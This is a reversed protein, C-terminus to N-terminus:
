RGRRLSGIALGFLGIGGLVLIPVIPPTSTTAPQNGEPTDTGSAQVGGVAQTPALAILGPPYTFTPLIPLSAGGSAGTGDTGPVDPSQVTATLVSGPTQVLLALTAEGGTPASQGTSASSFPDNVEPVSQLDGTVTVLEGYVWGWGTPSPPYQFQIWSVYRGIVTYSEGHRITGFQSADTSPQARVNAGVTADNAELRVLSALTPMPTSTPLAEQQQVETAALPALDVIAPTPVQGQAAAFTAGVLLIPIPALLVAIRVPYLTKLM